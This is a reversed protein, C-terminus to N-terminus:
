VDLFTQEPHTVLAIFVLEDDKSIVCVWAPNGGGAQEVIVGHSCSILKPINTNHTSFGNATLNLQMIKTNLVM